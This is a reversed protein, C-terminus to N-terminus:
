SKVAKKDARNEATRKGRGNERLGNGDINKLAAMSFDAIHEALQEIGYKADREESPVLIAVFERAVRYLLCQGVISFAVQEREHKESEPSLLEDLISLLQKLQPRIFDEVLPRCAATPEFMERMMLRTQWGLERTGLMRSLMAGIFLRLKEDSPTEEPWSPPPVQQLRLTHALHVTELYLSEKDRFHYNVSAVNVGAATCIERVTSAAYGKEAFIPGAAHLVRTPTDDAM